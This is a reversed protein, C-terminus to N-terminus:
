KNGGPAKKGGEIYIQTESRQGERIMNRRESSNISANRAHCTYKSCIEDIKSQELFDIERESKPSLKATCLIRPWFEAKLLKFIKNCERRAATIHPSTPPFAQRQEEILSTSKEKRM